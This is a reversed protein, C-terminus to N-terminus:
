SSIVFQISANAFVDVRIAMVQIQHITMTKVIDCVRAGYYAVYKADAKKVGFGAYIIKCADMDVIFFVILFSRAHVLNGGIGDIAASLELSM